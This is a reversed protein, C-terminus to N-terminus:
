GGIYKYNESKGVQEYGYEEGVHFGDAPSVADDDLGIEADHDDGDRGEEEEEVGEEEEEAEDAAGFPGHVDVVDALGADAVLADEVDHLLGEHGDGLDAHLLAVGLVAVDLLGDVGEGLLVVDAELVGVGELVGDELHDVLQLVGLPDDVHPLSM